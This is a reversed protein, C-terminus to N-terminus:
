FWGASIINPSRPAGCIAWSWCRLWRIRYFNTTSSRWCMSARRFCQRSPVRPELFLGVAASAAINRDFTIRVNGLRSIYATREYEVIVKPALGRTRMAAALLNMPPPSDKGLSPPTGRIIARCQEPTITCATKHTMGHLKEKIELKILSADGNYIRLRYKHRDDVGAENEWLCSNSFDDFYLSRIAYGGPRHHGDPRLIPSLRAALVALQAGSVQYKWENRYDLRKWGKRGTIRWINM